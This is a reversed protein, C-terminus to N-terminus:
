TCVNYSVIQSTGSKADTSNMSELTDYKVEGDQETRRFFGYLGHNPNVKIDLHPRLAGDKQVTPLANAPKRVSKGKASRAGNVWNVFPRAVPITTRMSSHIRPGLLAAVLAICRSTPSRFLSSVHCTVAPANGHRSMRRLDLDVCVGSVMHCWGSLEPDDEVYCTWKM